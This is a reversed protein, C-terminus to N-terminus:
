AHSGPFSLHWAHLGAAEGIAQELFLDSRQDAPKGKVREFSLPTLTLICSSPPM